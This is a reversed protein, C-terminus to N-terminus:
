LLIYKFDIVVNSFLLIYIICWVSKGCFVILFTTQLCIPGFFMIWKHKFLNETFFRWSSVFFPNIKLRIKQEDLKGHCESKKDQLEVFCPGVKNVEGSVNIRLM